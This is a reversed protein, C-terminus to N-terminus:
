ATGHEAETVMARVTKYNEKVCLFNDVTGAFGIVTPATEAHLQIWKM